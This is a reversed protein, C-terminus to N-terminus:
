RGRCRRCPYTVPTIFHMCVITHEPGTIKLYAKGWLKEGLSSPNLKM